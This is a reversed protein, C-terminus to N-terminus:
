YIVNHIVSFTIPITVQACVLFVPALTFILSYWGTSIWM